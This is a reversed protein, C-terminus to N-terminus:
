AKILDSARIRIDKNINSRFILIAISSIRFIRWIYNEISSSIRGIIYKKKANEYIPRFGTSIFKLLIFESGKWSITVVIIILDTIINGDM